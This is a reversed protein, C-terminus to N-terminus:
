LRYHLGRPIVRHRANYWKSFATLAANYRTVAQNYKADETNEKHIRAQLWNIYVDEAFRDPVCLEYDDEDEPKPRCPWGEHTLIIEDFIQNEVTLLWRRKDESSYMNPTLRDTIELAEKFLM